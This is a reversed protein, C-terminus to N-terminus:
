LFRRANDDMVHIMSGMSTADDSTVDSESTTFSAAAMRIPPFGNAPSCYKETPPDVDPIYYGPPPDEM